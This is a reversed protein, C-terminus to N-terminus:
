AGGKREAAVVQALAKNAERRTEYACFEGVTGIDGDEAMRRVTYRRDGQPPQESSVFFWVKGVRIVRGIRSRFFRIAGPDFWHGDPKRNRYTMRLTQQDEAISGM